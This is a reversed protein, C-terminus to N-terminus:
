RYLGTKVFDWSLVNQLTWFKIKEITKVFKAKKMKISKAENFNSRPLNALSPSQISELVGKLDVICMYEEISQGILNLLLFLSFM